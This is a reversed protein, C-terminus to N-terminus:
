APPQEYLQRLAEPAQPHRGEMRVTATVTVTGYLRPLLDLEGLEALCSLASNDSIIIM